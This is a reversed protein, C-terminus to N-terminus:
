APGPTTSVTFHTPEGIWMASAGTVIRMGGAVSPWCVCSTSASTACARAVAASHHRDEVLELIVDRAHGDVPRVHEVGDVRGGLALQLRDPALDLPLRSTRQTTSVPVPSRANEVPASMFPPLPALPRSYQASGRGPPKPPM